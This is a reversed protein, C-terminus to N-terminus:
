RLSKRLTLRVTCSDLSSGNPRKSWPAMVHHLGLRAVYGVHHFTLVISCHQNRMVYLVRRFRFKRIGLRHKVNAIRMIELELDRKHYGTQPWRTYHDLHCSLFDGRLWETGSVLALLV